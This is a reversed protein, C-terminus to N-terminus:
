LGLHELQPGHAAGVGGGGEAGLEGEGDQHPPRGGDVLVVVFDEDRARLTAPRTGLGRVEWLTLGGAEEDLAVPLVELM